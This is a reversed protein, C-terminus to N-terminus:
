LRPSPSPGTEEAGRSLQDRFGGELNSANDALGNVLRKVCEREYCARVRVVNGGRGKGRFTRYEVIGAKILTELPRGFTHGYRAEGYLHSKPVKLGNVIHMLGRWGSQEFSLRRRLYDEAFARVLFGMIPSFRVVHSESGLNEEITRERNMDEPVLELVSRSEELRTPRLDLSLRYTRFPDLRFCRPELLEAQELGPSSAPRTAAATPPTSDLVEIIGAGLRRCTIELSAKVTEGPVTERPALLLRVELATAEPGPYGVTLDPRELSRSRLTDTKDAYIIQTRPEM